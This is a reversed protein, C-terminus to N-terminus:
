STSNAVRTFLVLACASRPQGEGVGVEAVDVSWNFSRIM